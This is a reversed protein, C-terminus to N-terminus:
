GSQWWMLVIMSSVALGYVFLSSVPLPTIDNRLVRLPSVSKLRLLAPLSFGTLTVLGSVFGSALPYIGPSPLEPALFEKLLIILGEQAMYGTLCGLLSGLVGLILLQTSFIQIITKQSAGMCRMLASQDFHRQGYRNATMAIAIGSLM